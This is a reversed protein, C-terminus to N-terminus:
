RGLLIVYRLSQQGGNRVFLFLKDFSQEAGVFSRRNIEVASVIVAMRAETDCWGLATKDQHFQQYLNAMM